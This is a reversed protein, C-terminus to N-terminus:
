AVEASCQQDLSAVVPAEERDRGGTSGINHVEKASVTKFCLHLLAGSKNWMAYRSGRICEYVQFHGVCTLWWRGLM